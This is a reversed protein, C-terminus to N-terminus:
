LSVASGHGLFDTCLLQQLFSYIVQKETQCVGLYM